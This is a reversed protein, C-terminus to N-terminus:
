GLAGWCNRLFGLFERGKEDGTFHVYMDLQRLTTEIEFSKPSHAELFEHVKFKALKVDGTLMLFEANTIVEWWNSEDIKWGVKVEDYIKKIKESNPLKIEIADAIKYLYAFNIADYYKDTQKSQYAEHYKIQANKLLERDVEHPKKWREKSGEKTYLAKRKYNSALLTIVEPEQYQYHSSSELLRLKHIADDWNEVACSSLLVAKLHQIPNYFTYQFSNSSNKIIELLALAETIQGNKKLEKALEFIFPNNKKKLYSDSILIKSKKALLNLEEREEKSIHNTPYFLADEKPEENKYDDLKDNFVHDVNFDDIWVSSKIMFYECIKNKGKIRIEGKGKKWSSLTQPSVGMKKAIEQQQKGNAYKNLIVVFKERDSIKEERHM